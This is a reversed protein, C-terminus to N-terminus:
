ITRLIEILEEWLNQGFQEWSKVLNERFNWWNKKLIEGFTKWSKVMSKAFNWM